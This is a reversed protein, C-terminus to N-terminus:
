NVKLPCCAEHAGCSDLFCSVNRTNKAAGGGEMDFGAAMKVSAVELHLKMMRSSSWAGQVESCQQTRWCDAQMSCHM